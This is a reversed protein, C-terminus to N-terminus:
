IVQEVISEPYARLAKSVAWQPLTKKNPAALSKIFEADPSAAYWHDQGYNTKVRYQIHLKM